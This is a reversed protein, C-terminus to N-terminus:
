CKLKLNSQPGWKRKAKHSANVSVEKAFIMKTWRSPSLSFKDGFPLRPGALHMFPPLIKTKSSEHYLVHKIEHNNIVKCLKGMIQCTELNEM